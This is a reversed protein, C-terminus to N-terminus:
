DGLPVLTYFVATVFVVAELSNLDGEDANRKQKDAEEM